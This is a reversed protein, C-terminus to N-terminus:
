PTQASKGSVAGMTVQMDRFLIEFGRISQEIIGQPKESTENGSSENSKEVTDTENMDTDNMVSDNAEMPQDVETSDGQDPNSTRSINFAVLGSTLMALVGILLILQRTTEKM